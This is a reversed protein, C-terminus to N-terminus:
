PTTEARTQQMTRLLVANDPEIRLIRELYEIKAATNKRQMAVVYAASLVTTNTPWLSLARDALEQARVLNGGLRYLDILNAMGDATPAREMEREITKAAWSAHANSLDYAFNSPESNDGKDIVIVNHFARIATIQKAYPPFVRSADAVALEAHNLCAIVASALKLIDGGDSSSGGFQPWFTPRSTRSSM